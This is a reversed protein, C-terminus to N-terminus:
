KEQDQYLQPLRLGVIAAAEETSREGKCYRAHLEMYEKTSRLYTVYANAMMPMENGERCFRSSTTQNQKFEARILEVLSRNAGNSGNSNLQRLLEKYLNLINSKKLAQM